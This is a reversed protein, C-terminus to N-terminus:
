PHDLDWQLNAPHAVISALMDPPSVIDSPQPPMQLQPSPLPSPPPSLQNFSMPSLPPSPQTFLLPSPLPSPSPPSPSPPPPSPPPLPPPTILPGPSHVPHFSTPASQATDPGPLVYFRMQSDASTGDSAINRRFHQRRGHEHQSMVSTAPNFSVNIFGEANEVFPIALRPTGAVTHHVAKVSSTDDVKFMACETANFTKNCFKHYEEMRSIELNVARVVAQTHVSLSGAGRTMVLCPSMQSTLHIGMLVMHAM